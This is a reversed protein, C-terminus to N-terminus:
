SQSFSASGMRFGAIGMEHPLYLVRQPRPPRLNLDQWESWSKALILISVPVSQPVTQRAENVEISM